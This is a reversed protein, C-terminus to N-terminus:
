VHEDNGEDGMDTSALGLSLSVSVSSLTCVVPFDSTEENPLINFIKDVSSLRIMSAVELATPELDPTVACRTNPRLDADAVEKDVEILDPDEDGDMIDEWENSSVSKEVSDEMLDSAEELIRDIFRASWM